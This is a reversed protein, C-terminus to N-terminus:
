VKSSNPFIFDRQISFSALFLLTESLLKSVLVSMGTHSVMAVIMNYALVAIAAALLYYKVAATLIRDRNHFVMRRNVTFNIVSAVVRGLIISYLISGSIFKYSITFVVLDASAAFASSFSFRLLLFYIKMSDILPNFHSSKNDEIYITSIKEETMGIGSQKLELLMNMEYEYREGDLQLLVPVLDRPIGRLGTQTDSVKIGVLFSFLVRTIVNGLLSRLPASRDFSRAGLIMKQRNAKLSRAVKLIDDPMHQGDADATVIGPSDPFKLFYHNLGTKLARGKGFNVAHALLHCQGTMKVKEFIQESGRSYSGDNVVIIDRFGLKVLSDILELLREDPNLAPILICIDSIDGEGPKM